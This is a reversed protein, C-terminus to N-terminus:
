APVGTWRLTASMDLRNEQATMELRLGKAKCYAEVQRRWEVLPPTHPEPDNRIWSSEWAAVEEREQSTLVYTAPPATMTRKRYRKMREVNM